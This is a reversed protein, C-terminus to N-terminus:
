RSTSRKAEKSLNWMLRLHRLGDRVSRLHSHYGRLDKRYHVPVQEIRQGYLAARGIMETAFEMGESCCGLELYSAKNVARLGCHFDRVDTHVCRRGIRSLVPVGLYRHSFSMAGKEMPRAFRDGVVLEAGERLANLFPQLEEFSYSCDCDAMIVYIGKAHHLGSNLANGYGKQTCFQIRAGADAAKRVSSDSSGNDIVLVEGDIGNEKLFHVAQRVCDAVTNEENLCPMLITLEM